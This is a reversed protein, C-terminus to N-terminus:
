QTWYQLTKKDFSESRAVVVGIVIMMATVEVAALIGVEV